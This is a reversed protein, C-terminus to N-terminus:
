HLAQVPLQQESDAAKSWEVGSWELGSSALVVHEPSGYLEGQPVGASDLSHLQVLPALSVGAHHHPVGRYDEGLVQLQYGLVQGATDATLEPCPGSSHSKTSCSQSTM